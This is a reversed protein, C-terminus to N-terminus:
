RKAKKIGELFGEKFNQFKSKEIAFPIKEVGDVFFPLRIIKDSDLDYAYFAIESSTIIGEIVKTCKNSNIKAVKKTLSQVYKLNKTDAKSLWPAGYFLPHTHFRIYVPSNTFALEYVTKTLYKIDYVIQRSNASKIVDNEDLKIGAIFIEGNSVQTNMIGSLEKRSNRCLETLKNFQIESMNINM